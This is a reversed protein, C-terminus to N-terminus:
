ERKLGGAGNRRLRPCVIRVNDVRDRAQDCLGQYGRGDDIFRCVIPQEVGRAGIDSGFECLTAFRIADGPAMRAKIGLKEFVVLDDLRQETFRIKRSVGWM